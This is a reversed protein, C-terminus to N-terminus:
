RNTIANPHEGVSAQPGKEAIHVAEIPSKTDKSM